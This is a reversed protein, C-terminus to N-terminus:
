DWLGDGFSSGKAGAEKEGSEDTEDTTPTNTHKDVITAGGVTACVMSESDIALTKIRPSIYDKQKM